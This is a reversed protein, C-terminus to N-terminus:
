TAPAEMRAIYWSQPENRAAEQWERMLPHDLMADVYLQAVPSLTPRYTMFRFVVPAYMADANGIEQGFLYPGDGGFRARTDCWLADIRAIDALCEPTQGAGVASRFLSMPMNMRLDRFGSHMEASIARAHARAGPHTPWLMPVMEACYECIALSDWITHGDYELLPVYGSPSAAKVAPTTGGSLPIVREEVDLRALKVALWGRLSWSSYRRTGITLIGDKPTRYDAPTLFDPSTATKGSGQTDITTDSM